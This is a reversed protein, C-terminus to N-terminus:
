QLSAAILNLVAAVRQQCVHEHLRIVREDFGGFLGMRINCLTAVELGHTLNAAVAYRYFVGESLLDLLAELCEGEAFWKGGGHM